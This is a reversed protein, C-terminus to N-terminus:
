RGVARRLGSVPVLRRSPGGGLSSRVRRRIASTSAVRRQLYPGFGWSAYWRQVDKSAPPVDVVIHDSGLEDAWEVVEALLATGVGRCRTGQAVHLMHIHVGPADMMPGGDTLSVTALGVPEDGHWAALFRFGGGAAAEVRRRMRDLSLALPLGGRRRGGSRWAEDWLPAVEDIHDLEVDRIDITM